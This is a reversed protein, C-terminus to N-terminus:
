AEDLMPIRDKLDKLFDQGSYGSKLAVFVVNDQGALTGLVCELGINDLALAVPASHGSFTKIVVLNDNWDISVYGRVFDQGHIEGRRKLEDDSPVAYFYGESGAGVKSAKLLKLDRSLTAQTIYISHAELLVLLEEQSEVRNERLLKLIIKLRERRNTISSAEKM